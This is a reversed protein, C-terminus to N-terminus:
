KSASLIATTTTWYVATSNVAIAFPTDQGAAVTRPSTCSSGEACVRVTGVTLANSWYVDTGDNALGMPADDYVFVKSAGGSAKCSYIAAGGLPYPYVGTTIAVFVHGSTATLGRIYPTGPVTCVLADAGGGIPVSRLYETLTTPYYSTYGYGYGYACGYGYELSAGYPGTMLLTAFFLQGAGVALRLISEGCAVTYLKQPSTCAAGLPCQYISLGDTFYANSADAVVEKFAPAYPSAYTGPAFVAPSPACGSATCDDLDGTTTEYFAAGSGALPQDPFGGTSANTALATPVSPCGAVPCDYVTGANLWYVFGDDAALAYPAESAVVTIPGGGGWPPADLPAADPPAADAVITGDTGADGSGDSSDEGHSDPFADPENSYSAADTGGDGGSGDDVHSGADLDGDLSGQGDFEVGRDLGLTGDKSEADGPRSPSPHDGVAGDNPPVPQAPRDPEADGGILGGCAWGASVVAALALSVSARPRRRPPLSGDRGIPGDGPIDLPLRV